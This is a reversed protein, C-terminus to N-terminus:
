KEGATDMHALNETALPQFGADAQEAPETAQEAESAPQEGAPAEGGPEGEATEAADEAEASQEAEAEAAHAALTEDDDEAPLDPNRDFGIINRAELLFLVLYVFVGAVVFAWTSRWIATMFRVDSLLGVIFVVLAAIVSFFLAAGIKFM